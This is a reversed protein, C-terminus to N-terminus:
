SDDEKADEEDELDWLRKTEPDIYDWEGSIRELRINHRIAITGAFSFPPLPSVALFMCELTSIFNGGQDSKKLEDLCGEIEIMHDVEKVTYGLKYLASTRAAYLEDENMDAINM